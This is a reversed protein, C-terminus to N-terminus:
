DGIGRSRWGPGIGTNILDEPTNVNTAARRDPDLRNVIAVPIARAGVRELFHRARFDGAALAAALPEACAGTYIALMPEPGDAGPYALATYERPEDAMAAVLEPTVFPMDCAVVLCADHRAAQLAGLIGALPGAGSVADPACRAGLHLVTFRSSDGGVLLIEACCTNLVRVLRAVLPEGEVELFAKDRGMRRSGGGVLVAGSLPEAM